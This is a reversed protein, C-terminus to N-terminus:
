AAGDEGMVAALQALARTLHKKVTEESIGMARAIEQRSQGKLRRRVVVERRQPPLARLAATLAALRQRGSVVQDPAPSACPLDDALPEQVPSDVRDLIVSHAVRLAYPVPQRVDGERVRELMRLMTEQYIDDAEAPNRIRNRIFALLRRNGALLDAVIDPYGLSLMRTPGM